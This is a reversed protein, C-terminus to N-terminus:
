EVDGGLAANTEEATDAAMACSSVEAANAAARAASM